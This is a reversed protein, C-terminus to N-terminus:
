STLAPAMRRHRRHPPRGRLPRRAQRPSHRRRPQAPAPQYRMGRRPAAQVERPRLRAAQRRLQGEEEPQRGPRGERPHHLPHRPPAPVGPQRPIRLGEGGPGPVPPHPAAGRRDPSRPDREARRHVPPQRPPSRRHRHDGPTEPGARLGPPVQQDARRPVPRPRSRRARPRRGPRAAGEPRRRGEQGRGRAPAGARHGFRRLRGLDRARGRRGPGAAGHRDEAVHRRAALPPVPRVGVAVPWLVAPHGAVPRRGPDALPDRRDAAAQGV